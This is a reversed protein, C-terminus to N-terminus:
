LISCQRLSADQKNCSLRAENLWLVTALISQVTMLQRVYTCIKESNKKPPLFLFYVTVVLLQHSDKVTPVLSLRQEHIEEHLAPMYVCLTCTNKSAFQSFIATKCNGGPSTQCCLVIPQCFTSQSSEIAFIGPCLGFQSIHFVYLLPKRYKIKVM